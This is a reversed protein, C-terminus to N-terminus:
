KTSKPEKNDENHKSPGAKKAEELIKDSLPGRRHHPIKVSEKIRPRRNYWSMTKGGTFFGREPCIM